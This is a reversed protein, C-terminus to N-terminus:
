DSARVLFEPLGSLAPESTRALLGTPRGSGDLDARLELDLGAVLFRGDTAPLLPWPAPGLADPLGSLLLGEGGREVEVEVGPAQGAGYRGALHAALDEDVVISRVPVALFALAEALLEDADLRTANLLTRHSDLRAFAADGVADGTPNLDVDVLYVLAPALPELAEFLRVALDVAADTDLVGAALLARPAELWGGASLWPTPETSARIAFNQWQLVLAEMFTEASAYAAPAYDRRLPHGKERRMPLHVPRDDAELQLALAQTLRTATADSAGDVLIVRTELM